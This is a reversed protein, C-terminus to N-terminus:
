ELKFGGKTYQLVYFGAIKSEIVENSDEELDVEIDGLKAPTESPVNSFLDIRIWERGKEINIGKSIMQKILQEAQQNMNSKFYILRGTIRMVVKIEGYGTGKRFILEKM